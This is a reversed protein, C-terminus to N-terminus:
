DRRCIQKFKCFTCAEINEAQRFPVDPNFIESVLSNFRDVFEDYATHYDYLTNKDISLNRIGTTFLDRTKYIIPTIAQTDGTNMAYFHCYLMLQFIAHAKYNFLDDIGAAELTDSGTKYDVFRLQGNVRDIRDITQTFNVTLQDSIKLRDKLKVEAGIFDFPAITESEVKLLQRIIEVLVHHMVLAEGQLPSELKDNDLKIFHRNISQTVLRDILTNNAVLSKLQEKTVTQGRDNVLRGYINELVEHYITGYTSYDMYDNIEDPFRLGEVYELYFNLPCRIYENIASASLNKSGEPLLFQNMLELIDSTKEITISGDNFSAIDYYAIRHVIHENPFLYLLQSIYRSFENNRRIGVTRADYVLTVNNARSLLRYFYYAYISESFDATSMGYARRLADPIFSRKVHKGPFIAENMSLMIVNEFDLSRTELVGMIQLGKLPEGSLHITASSVARELMALMTTERMTIGYQRCAYEIENIENLYASIFLLEVDSLNDPSRRLFNLLNRIYGTASAMDDSKRLPTFIPLLEPFDQQILSTSVNFIRKDTIHDVLRQCTDPAISRLIQNSMLPLVNEYFFCYEGVSKRLNRQLTVISKMLVAVPTLKMPFGMTVNKNSFAPPIEDILSMFLSEDALVIATEMANDTNPIATQGVAAWEAVKNAAIRTQGVNSPVGIIEINPPMSDIKTDGIDYASKFERINEKMFRTAKNREMEFAPSNFDWYFDAVGRAKLKQFVKFEATSLVNFGVFVYRSHNLPIDGICQAAHRYFMGQTALGDNELRQTFNHYLKGLVEWLAIFRDRSNFRPTDDNHNIKSSFHTWFRTLHDGPVDDGWYRRIIDRQDETLYTSNIERLEKLNRFLEDPDVLHRDVDNFDSLIMEGWFIFKDFDSLEPSLAAYENYLIFLQEYRTAESLPSLSMIFDSITIAEPEIHPTEGLSDNLYKLFFAVNRKTPFIFCVDALDGADMNKAYAQAVLKLFPEKM